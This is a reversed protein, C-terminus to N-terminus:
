SDTQNSYTPLAYSFFVKILKLCKEISGNNMFSKTLADRFTKVVPCKMSNSLDNGQCRKCKLISSCQHDKLYKHIEGFFKCTENQKRCQPRFQAIACRKSFILVNVPALYENM